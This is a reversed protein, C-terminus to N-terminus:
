LCCSLQRISRFPFNSIKRTRILFLFLGFLLLSVFSFHGFYFPLRNLPSESITKPTTKDASIVKRKRGCMRM